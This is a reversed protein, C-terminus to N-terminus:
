RVSNLHWRAWILFIGPGDLLYRRWLRHPESVLRHLWELGVSRVWRPARSKAGTAFELSAGFCLAVGRARDRRALQACILESQPSGVAFFFVPAHCREVFDVVDVQARPNQLLGQPPAHHLWEVQPFRRALDEMLQEDAGIVAASRMQLSPQLLRTTLDSGTVLSLKLGSLRALAALVRSDCLCLAAGRYSGWLRGDSSNRHLRVVHDVNPTVVYTFRSQHQLSLIANSAATEDVQDFHMGLFETRARAGTQRM